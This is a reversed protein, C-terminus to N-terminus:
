DDWLFDYAVVKRRSLDVTTGRFRNIPPLSGDAEAFYCSQLNLGTDLIAILQGEGHIGHDYLPTPGFASGSQLSRYSVENASVTFAVLLVAFLKRMPFPFSLARRDIEM